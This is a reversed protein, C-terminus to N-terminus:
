HCSLRSIMPEFAPQTLSPTRLVSTLSPQTTLARTEHDTIHFTINHDPSNTTSRDLDCKFWFYFLQNMLAGVLPPM